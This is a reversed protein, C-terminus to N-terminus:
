DDVVPKSTEDEITGILVASGPIGNEESQEDEDEDGDEVEDQDQDVRLPVKVRTDFLIEVQDGDVDIGRQRERLARGLVERRSEKVRGLMKSSRLLTTDVKTMALRKILELNEEKKLKTEQVM